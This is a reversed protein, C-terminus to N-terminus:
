PQYTIQFGRLKADFNAANEIRAFLYFLHTDGTFTPAGPITTPSAGAAGFGTVTVLTTKDFPSVRLERVLETTMTGGTQEGLVKLSQLKVGNPLNLPLVGFAHDNGAPKEVFTGQPVGGIVRSWVVASWPQLNGRYPEVTPTLGVTIPATVVQGLSSIASDIDQVVTEISDFEAEVAHFRANFGNDGGAQVRDVNDIWEPSHQFARTYSIPM